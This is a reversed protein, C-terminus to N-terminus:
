VPELFWPSAYAVAAGHQAFPGSGDTEERSPDTIRLFLWDGQAREVPVSFEAVPGDATITETHALTPGPRVVQVVLERGGVGAIDLAIDLAGSEHGLVSGMGVGNATADLRMGHEFTAFSRRSELAARVGARTLESVWLGGRAMGARGFTEGHEDSVGTFGVRWGANLCADFQNPLGDAHGYWFFDRTANLAEFSVVRQAAGPHYVFEDFNGFEGPHNFCAIGDNGGGFVPRNPASSLWEYFFAMTAIDPLAEFNDVIESPVPAVRDIEAAAPPTFFAHEHLADTYQDTFYVNLHGITPTSYEFGRFAVFAGPDDEADAIHKMTEWDYENIGEVTHCGGQVHGPCTYNGHHKGSIAHETMCAADIGNERMQRLAVFPNGAADGSILSHNHLDTHAVFLGSGSQLQSARAVGSRLPLGALARGGGFAALSGLAALSRLFSRRDLSM